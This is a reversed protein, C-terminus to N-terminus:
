NFNLQSIHTLDLSVPEPSITELVTQWENMPVYATNTQHHEYWHFLLFFAESWLGEQLYLTAQEIPESQILEKELVPSSATPQVWGDVVIDAARNDHCILSLFWRYNQTSHIAHNQLAVDLDLSVLGSHQAVSFTTDVLPKNDHDYLIFEANTFTESYPIYVWLIPQAATIKLVSTDPMFAM